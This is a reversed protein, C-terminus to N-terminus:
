ARFTKMAIDNAKATLINNGNRYSNKGSGVYVVFVPRIGSPIDNMKFIANNIHSWLNLDFYDYSKTKKQQQQFFYM